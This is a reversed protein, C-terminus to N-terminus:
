SGGNDKEAESVATALADLKGQQHARQFVRRFREYDPQKMDEEELLELRGAIESKKSFSLRYFRLGVDRLKDMTSGEAPLEGAVEHSATAKGSIAATSKEAAAEKAPPHWTELKISHEWVDSNKVRKAQFGGPATQWVRVHAKLKLQRSDGHGDVMLELFNYGPEWLPETRDPHAASATLRIYDVERSIRNTHVHGFIQVPAVDNLHDELAQAQRLWTLHHHAVVLNVVGDNRPIQLSAEDVFLDREKDLSSSVFATNLGWLRLTSGDNLILDRTARTREPPLLDCFFQLAFTNYNDLSEYLLRRADPDRLQRSIEATPNPAAKIANHVLRVLYRDAQERVVDHNGPCVFVSQLSGGCEQCLRRLWDTAFAFEEPAGAFAVDGSLIIVDPPGLVKCQAVVDRVLENRLHFNPDQATTVEMKRFHIDSLHLVLV